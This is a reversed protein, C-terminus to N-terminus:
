ELALTTGALLRLRPIDMALLSEGGVSALWQRCRDADAPSMAAVLDRARQLYWLLIVFGKRRHRGDGLPYEVEPPLRPLKGGPRASALAPRMAELVAGALPLMEEVISRVIPGLTAPLASGIAPLPPAEATEYPRQMRWVWDFVQPRKRIFPRSSPDHMLHCYLPMILGFDARTARQGLLYPHVAFHADFADLMRDM